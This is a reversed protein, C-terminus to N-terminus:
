LYSDQDHNNNKIELQYLAMANFMWAQAWRMYPTRSHPGRRLQYYFYGEKDQMNNVTWRLVKDILARHEGFLGLRSLTIILQSTNHVDIPYLNNSYYKPKGEETFFTNLYYDTGKKIAKDFRHDHTYYQYAALCELNYGTHFNDIWQHFPLTGYSWAGNEQQHGCCYAASKRAPNLLSADKTYDYIRALLRSGLLSANFVQTHDQPSYSFAFNGADDYTRNLDYLVFSASSLAVSLYRQEKTIDYADMLANAVYTTAVVTPTNRPQFFARAQWDFNYGWCSGSYGETQLSIVKDALYSIKDLYPASAEQKYLHCYGALFLGLGKPNYEKKVGMAPRLNFPMRKMFQIWALRPWRNGSLYPLRRFVTSNLGDYPDWGRFDERECYDKLRNFSSVIDM